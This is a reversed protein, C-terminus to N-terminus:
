ALLVTETDYDDVNAVGNLLHHDGYGVSNRPASDSNVSPEHVNSSAHSPSDELLLRGAPQQQERSDELSIVDLSLQAQVNGQHEALAALRRRLRERGGGGTAPRRM